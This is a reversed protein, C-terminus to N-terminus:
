GVVHKRKAKPVKPKVSRVLDDKPIFVETPVEVFESRKGSWCMAFGRSANHIALATHLPSVRVLMGLFQRDVPVVVICNEPIWSVVSLDERNSLWKPMGAKQTKKGVLIEIPGVDYSMVHDVAAKLGQETYPQASGWRFETAREFISLSAELFVHSLVAGRQIAAKIVNGPHVQDIWMLGKSSSVLYPATAPDVQFELMIPTVGDKKLVEPATRLMHVLSNGM